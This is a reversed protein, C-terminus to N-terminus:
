DAPVLYLDHERASEGQHFDTLTDKLTEFGDLEVRLFLLGTTRVFLAYQGGSNSQTVAQRHGRQDSWEVLADTIPAGSISNVVTGHVQVNLTDQAYTAPACLVVLLPTFVHIKM